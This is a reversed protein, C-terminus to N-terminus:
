FIFKFGLNISHSLSPARVRANTTIMPDSDNKKFNWIRDKTEAKALSLLSYSLDILIQDHFKYSVGANVGYTFEKKIQKDDIDLGDYYSQYKTSGYGISGGLYPILESHHYLFDYYLSASAVWSNRKLKVASESISDSSEQTQPSLYSFSCEGRIEENINYGIFPTIIIGKGSKQKLVSNKLKPDRAIIEVHGKIVSYGINTGLYINAQSNIISSSSILITFILLPTKNSLIM